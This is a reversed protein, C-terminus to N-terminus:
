ERNKLVEAPLIRNVRHVLMQNIGFYLVIIALYIAAYMQPTFTLNMGCAVNSVLVPYMADMLWKSAPVCFAAGVAITYFNGNLYLKRVESKRYGFIKILSISFASRDLMVKMMLYMVVCFIIAAVGSMMSIMPMMMSAFIDSSKKIEERTTTAYLRGAEIGLDKDALVVNYYDESQGFLERMSEIDMFAYLGTSFQTIDKIEFVYDQNEEEDTLIVKEGVSLRYKQAMASSVVVENKSKTVEADFYPNNEDIGFLTVELNYGLFEKKLGKAYCAEGGKPVEKEPYKYTYMYEYRTDKKNEVSIHKCMVYCDIGLMMILLAIFMGFIVTFSCRAERLMQRIRFRGIFGMEGLNLQHMGKIKKENRILQLAPKALRKRIVAYNVICAVVPPMVIGYVLLYSPYVKALVPISFYEYSDAMQFEVGISSFGLMTGIMGAVFTIFVPLMLYHLLLEKQKVGMAYLTGIVSSERDISHVVFVSIVYTFLIMVIVGAILGATKNIVQDDASAGIRPNDEAKLFQTLNSLKVEWLSDMLEETTEQLEQLGGSLDVSGEAAEKEGDTYEWIGNKFAKLKQLQEVISNIKLSLIGNQQKEKISNLVAEFNDETLTEDLGYPKLGEQAEELATYFIEQAGQTLEENHSSLEKLGASLDSAGDFLEQIGEKLEEKKGVTEKWYEQFHVDEVQDQELEIEKLEEKLEENSMANNLQYSYVYEESKMSKEFAKLMNYAEETVFGIGFQSSNVSSDSLNRFPADYDPASGIGSVQFTYGGMSIKDGLKIEHEACYRKELVIQEQKKPFSGEDLEVLNMSTRNKYIRIMSEDEQCFDLYFMEELLVGKEELSAKQEDTLPVFVMFEGDEIKNERAATKSGVIITEAAGVLSVIMYMCLIILFGLALYRILNEKLDRIVRKRLIKQM